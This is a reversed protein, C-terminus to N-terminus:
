RVGPDAQRVPRGPTAGPSQTAPVTDSAAPRRKQRPAQRRVNARREGGPGWASEIESRPPNPKAIVNGARNPRVGPKAVGQLSRSATLPNEPLSNGVRNAVATQGPLRRHSLDPTVSQRALNRQRIQMLAQRKAHLAQIDRQVESRLEPPLKTAIKALEQAQNYYAANLQLLPDSAMVGAPTTRDLRKAATPDLAGPPQMATQPRLKAMAAAAQQQFTRQVQPRITDSQPEQGWALPSFAGLTLLSAVATSAITLKM